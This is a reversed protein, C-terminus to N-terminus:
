RHSVVPTSAKLVFKRYLGLHFLLLITFAIFTNKEGHYLSEKASHVVDAVSVEKFLNWRKKFEDDTLEKRPSEKSSAKILDKEEEQKFYEYSSYKKFAYGKLDSTPDKIAVCSDLMMIFVTTLVISCIAFVAICYAKM